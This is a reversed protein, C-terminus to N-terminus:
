LDIHNSIYTVQRKIRKLRYVGEGERSGSQGNTNGEVTIYFKEEEKDFFGTHGVRQGYQIGIVDGAQPSIKKVEGRVVIIKNKDVFWSAAQAPSKVNPKIGADLFCSYVFSGCWATGSKVGASKQYKYIATGSNTGVEKTGIEKTYIKRLNERQGFLTFPLTLLLMFILKKMILRNSKFTYGNFDYIINHDM